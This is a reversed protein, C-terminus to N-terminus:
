EPAPPRKGSRYPADIPKGSYGDVPIPHRPDIISKSDRQPLASADQAELEEANVPAVVNADILSLAERKPLETAENIHHTAQDDSHTHSERITRKMKKAM